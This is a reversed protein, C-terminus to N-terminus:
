RTSGRMLLSAELRITRKSGHRLLEDVCLRAMQHLPIRLTTLPPDSEAGDSLGDCGVVSVEEPVKCGLEKLLRIVTFATVDRRTFIVTPPQPRDLAARLLEKLNEPTRWGVLHDEPLVTLGADNFIRFASHTRTIDEYQLEQFMEEQPRYHGILLANRHGQELLCDALNRIAPAPNCYIESVAPSNCHGAFFIQPIRNQTLITKLPRDDRISRAGLHILGELRAAHHGIWNQVEEASADFGPLQLMMVSHELESARDIIGSIVDLRFQTEQQTFESFRCPIIVGIVPFPPCLKRRLDDAVFIGRKGEATQLLGRETLEEYARHVTPRAIDFLEALQREPLIRVGSAPRQRKLATEIGTVIQRALPETSNRDLSLEPIFTDQKM